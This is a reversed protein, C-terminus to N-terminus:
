TLKSDASDSNPTTECTGTPRVVIIVVPREPSICLMQPVSSKVWVARDTRSMRDEVTTHRYNQLEPRSVCARSNRASVADQCRKAKALRCKASQEQWAPMQLEPRALHALLEGDAMNFHGLTELSFFALRVLRFSLPPGM